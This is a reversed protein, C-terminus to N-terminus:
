RHTMEFKLKNPCGDRFLVTKRTAAIKYTCTWVIHGNANRSTRSAVLTGFSADAPAGAKPATVFAGASEEEAFAVMSVCLMALWPIRKM